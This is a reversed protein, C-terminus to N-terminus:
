VSFPQFNESGKKWSDGKVEKLENSRDELQKALRSNVETLTAVISCDTSTATALNTLADFTAEDM